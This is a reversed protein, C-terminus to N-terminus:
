HGRGDDGTGTDLRHALIQFRTEVFTRKGPLLQFLVVGSAKQLLEDPLKRMGQQGDLVEVGEDGDVTRPGNADTPKLSDVDGQGRHNVACTHLPGRQCFLFARDESTIICLPQVKIAPSFRPSAFLHDHLM